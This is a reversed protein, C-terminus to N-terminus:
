SKLTLMSLLQQITDQPGTTPRAQVAEHTALAHDNGGPEMRDGFFYINQYQDPDIHRLCSRKDMGKPFVDISIEGGIVADVGKENWDTLIQKKMTERCKSQQDWLYFELREEKTANRGVPSVNLVCSRREIFTGTRKPINDAQFLLGLLYTLLHNIQERSFIDELSTSSVHKGKQYVVTGNEHFTIDMLEDLVVSGLQYEAKKRDSGGVVGLDYRQTDKILQLACIMDMSITKMPETLTGDIDFLLLDKKM